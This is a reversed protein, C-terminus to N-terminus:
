INYFTSLWSLCSENRKNLFVRGTGRYIPSHMKWMPTTNITFLFSKDTPLTRDWLNSKANLRWKNNQKGSCLASPPPFIHLKKLSKGRKYFGELAHMFGRVISKSLSLVYICYIITQCLQNTNGLDQDEGKSIWVDDARFINRGDESSKNWM